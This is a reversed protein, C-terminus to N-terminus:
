IEIQFDTQYYEETHAIHLEYQNKFLLTLRKEINEMGIGSKKNQRTPAVKNYLTVLLKSQENRITIRAPHTADTLDGHKFINEVLTAIINVPFPREQIYPELIIKLQCNSKGLQAYLRVLNKILQVEDALTTEKEPDSGKLSLHLNDMLLEVMVAAKSNTSMVMNYVGNLTNLLLHPTIQTRLLAIEIQAKENEATLLAVDKERNDKERKILRRAAWFGYALLYFYTFRCILKVGLEKGQKFKLSKGEFYYILHSYYLDVGTFIIVWLMSLVIFSLDIRIVDKKIWHIYFYTSIYFFSIDILYFGFFGWFGLNSGYFFIVILESLIFIIIAILHYIIINLSFKSKM